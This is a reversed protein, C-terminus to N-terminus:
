LNGIVVIIVTYMGINSIPKNLKAIKKVGLENESLTAHMEVTVNAIIANKGVILFLTGGEGFTVIISM